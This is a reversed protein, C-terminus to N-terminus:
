IKHDISGHKENTNDGQSLKFFDTLKPCEIPWILKFQLSTKKVKIFTEILYTNNM